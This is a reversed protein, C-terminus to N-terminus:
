RRRKRQRPHHWEEKEAYEIIQRAFFMIGLFIMQGVTIVMYIWKFSGVEGISKGTLLWSVLITAAALGLYCYIVRGLYKSVNKAKVVFLSGFMAFIFLFAAGVMYPFKISPETLNALEFLKFGLALVLYGGFVYILLRVPDFPKDFFTSKQQM